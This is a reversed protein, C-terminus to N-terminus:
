FFDTHYIWVGGEDLEPKPVQVKLINYEIRDKFEDLCIKINATIEELHINSVEKIWKEIDEQLKLLKNYCIFLQKHGSTSFVQVFDVLWLM